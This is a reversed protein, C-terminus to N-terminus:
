PKLRIRFQPLPTPALIRIKDNRLIKHNKTFNTIKQLKHLVFLGVSGPILAGLRLKFTENLLTLGLTNNTLQHPPPPLTTLPGFM